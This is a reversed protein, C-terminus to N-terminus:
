HGVLSAGVNVALALVTTNFLFAFVTHALVVRRTGRTTVAVDSTQMAAGITFSFYAFDWYDPRDTPGPFDFGRPQDGRYYDHAYHLAFLTHVFFWSAVITFAALALRVGQPVAAADRVNILEAVLAGLSAVTAAVSVALVILANEDERKARRRMDELDARGMLTWMFGLYGVVGANWATLLRTSLPWARPLLLAVAVAFVGAAALRPRSKLIRLPLV